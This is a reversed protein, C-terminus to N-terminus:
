LIFEVWPSFRKWENDCWDYFRDESYIIAHVANINNKEVIKM